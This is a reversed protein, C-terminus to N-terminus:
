PGGPVYEIAFVLWLSGSANLGVLTQSDSIYNLTAAQALAKTTGFAVYLKIFFGSPVFSKDVISNLSEINFGTFDIPASVWFRKQDFTTIAGSSSSDFLELEAITTYPSGQSEIKLLRYYLYLGFNQDVTFYRREGLGWQPQGTLVSLNYWTTGDGSGQLTWAKLNETPQGANTHSTIAYGIVETVSPLQISVYASIAQGIGATAWVTGAYGINRDFLRWAEYGTAFVSDSTVIHGSQSYGTLAPIITSGSPYTVVPFTGLLLNSGDFSHSKVTTRTNDTYTTGGQWFALDQKFEFVRDSISYNCNIDSSTSIAEFELIAYNFNTENEVQYLYSYSFNADTEITM